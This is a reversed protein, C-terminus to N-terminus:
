LLAPTSTFGRPHKRHQHGGLTHVTDIKLAFDGLILHSYSQNPDDAEFIYTRKAGTPHLWQVQPKCPDGSLTRVKKPAEASASLTAGALLAAAAFGFRSAASAGTNTRQQISAVSATASKRSSSTVHVIRPGKYSRTHTIPVLSVYKLALATAPWLSSRFLALPLLHQELLGCLSYPLNQM